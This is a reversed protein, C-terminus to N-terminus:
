DADTYAQLKISDMIPYWLDMELIGKLYRLIRKVALVYSVKPDAQFRSAACVAQM